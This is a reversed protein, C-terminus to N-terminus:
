APCGIAYITFRALPFCLEAPGHRAGVAAIRLEGQPVYLVQSSSAASLIRSILGLFWGFVLLFYAVKLM